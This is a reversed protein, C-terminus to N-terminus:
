GNPRGEHAPLGFFAFGNWQTGTVHRAVASLSKFVRAQYRFGQELVEVSITQGQFHRTLRDGVAPLRPDRRTAPWAGGPSSLQKLFSQPARIRLEAQEALVLARQRARESLDGEVNAHMRWAIRRILFQKHNSHSERGFVKRYKVKLQAVTQSRLGDIEHWIARKEGRKRQEM